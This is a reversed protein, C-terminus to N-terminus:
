HKQFMVVGSGRNMPYDALLSVMQPIDYFTSAHSAHLLLHSLLSRPSFPSSAIIVSLNWTLESVGPFQLANFSDGCVHWLNSFHCSGKLILFGFPIYFKNKISFASKHCCEMADFRFHKKGSIHNKKDVPCPFDAHRSLYSSLVKPRRKHLCHLDIPAMEYHSLIVHCILLIVSWTSLVILM